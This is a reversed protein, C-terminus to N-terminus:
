SDTIRGHDLDYGNCGSRWRASAGARSEMWGMWGRAAGHRDGIPGEDMRRVDMTPGGIPRDHNRATGHAMADQTVDDTVTGEANGM